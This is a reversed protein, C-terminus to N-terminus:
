PSRPAPASSQDQDAPAIRVLADSGWRQLITLRRSLPLGRIEDEELRRLLGGGTLIAYYPRNSSKLKPLLQGLQATGVLRFRYGPPAYFVAGYRPETAMVIQGVNAPDLSALPGALGKTCRSAFYRQAPGFAFEVTIALYAVFFPALAVAPRRRGLLWTAVSAALLMGLRAAARPYDAGGFRYHEAVAYGIVGAVGIGLTAVVGIRLLTKHHEGAAALYGGILAFTPPFAPLVYNPMRAKSLAFFVLVAVGWIWLLNEGPPIGYHPRRHWGAVAAIATWPALGGIFAGPIVWWPATAGLGSGGYRDLNQKWFFEYLYEPYRWTMYAVWSGYIAAVIAMGSLPRLRWVERPLDRLPRSLLIYLGIVLGPLLVAVPGKTLCGLAM